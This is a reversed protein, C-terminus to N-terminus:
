RASLAPEKASKTCNALQSDITKIHQILWNNVTSAIDLVLTTSAGQTDFKEKLGKFKAIFQTHAQKNVEAVPCNYQEM